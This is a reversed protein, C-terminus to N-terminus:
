SSPSARGWHDVNSLAEPADLVVLWVTYPTANHTLSTGSAASRRPWEYGLLSSAATTPYHYVSIAANTIDETLRTTILAHVRKVEARAHPSTRQHPSHIPRFLPSARPERHLLNYLM